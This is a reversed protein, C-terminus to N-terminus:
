QRKLLDRRYLCSADQMRKFFFAPHMMYHPKRNLDSPSWWIAVEIVM